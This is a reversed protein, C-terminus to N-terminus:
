PIRRNELAELAARARGAEEERELALWQSRALRYASAARQTEGLGAAVEGARMVMRAIDVDARQTDALLRAATASHLDWAAWDKMAGVCPLLCAHLAAEMQRWGESAATELRASFVARAQAWRGREVLVLGLNVEVIAVAGAGARELRGLASRYHDEAQALEGRLRHLDGLGNLCYGVYVQSGAREYASRASALHVVAADLDGRQKAVESLAKECMAVGTADGLGQYLGLAQRCHTAADDLAGQDKLVQAMDHHCTALLADDGSAQAAQAALGLLAWATALEARHHAVRGRYALARGLLDSWGHDVAAEHTRDAWQGAIEIHGQRILLLTRLVWGEGYRPDSEPARLRALTREREDLLGVAVDYDGRNRFEEAALLLPGVAAALDGAALLHRAQRETIRPGAWATLARACARHHDALRGAESARRLLSERLMGHVFAWGARPGGAGTRALRRAVLDGVLGTPAECGAQACAGVWEATDVELGLVAALELGVALHEPRSRLLRDLHATWVQHLDDPLDARSGARLRFGQPGPELLGRAVWDGVLQVAFLPNGATRVEVQEGLEGELGLLERVLVARYREPLPGVEHREVGPMALLRAIWAAETPREHLAEPQVTAVIVAPCPASFRAKLLHAAFGLSDAGWHVDDLWVVLARRAGVRELARRAVSYREEPSALRVSALTRGEPGHSPAILDILAEWDEPETWGWARCAAEVRDVLRERELSQCGLYRALMPGLGDKPGGSPSHVARLVEAAGTEHARTCLWEGLRSKGYGVSGSLLVLGPRGLETARRLASWLLERERDRDVLPLERLGFLGLGAGHLHTTSRAPGGRRWSEPVVRPGETQPPLRAADDAIAALTVVARDEASFLVTPAADEEEAVAPEPARLPVDPTTPLGVATRTREGCTPEGLDLLANAADAARQYRARHDRRMLRELWDEFGEPLGIRPSFPKRNGELHAMAVVIPADGGVAREGAALEFALCGLSYLDSWPGYDRWQEQIQEPPMYHPTGSFGGRLDTREHDASVYAIGFDTLKLGPRTDEGTCVLVNAPKLDRHVLGRAHAHALADLIALLLARLEHWSLPPRGPKAFPEISGGGALEMVIYPSGPAVRRTGTRAAKADVEGFDYVALIGPHDLAAMARAEHRFTERYDDRRAAADTILKVAVPLGEHSARWVEGMGGRGIVEYLELPGLQLQPLDM